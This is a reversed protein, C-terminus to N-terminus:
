YQFNFSYPPLAHEVTLHLLFSRRSPPHVNSLHPFAGPSVSARKCAVWSNAHCDCALRRGRMNRMYISM